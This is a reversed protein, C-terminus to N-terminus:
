RGNKGVIRFRTTYLRNAPRTSKENFTNWSWKDKLLLGTKCNLDKTKTESLSGGVTKKTRGLAMKIGLALRISWLLTALYINQNVNPTTSVYGNVDGPRKCIDTLM